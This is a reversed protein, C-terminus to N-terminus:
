LAGAFHRLAFTNAIAAFIELRKGQGGIAALQDIARQRQVIQGVDRGQEGGNVPRQRRAARQQEGGFMGDVGGRRLLAPLHILVPLFTPRHAVVLLLALADAVPKGVSHFFLVALQGAPYVQQHGGTKDNLM